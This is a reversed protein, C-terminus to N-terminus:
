SIMRLVYRARRIYATAAGAATKRYQIKVKIRGGAVVPYEMGATFAQWETLPLTDMNTEVYNGNIEQLVRVQADENDVLQDMRLEASYNILYYGAPLPGSDHDLVDIWDTSQTSMGPQGWVDDAMAASQKVPSFDQGTHAAALVDVRDLDAQSVAGSFSIKVVGGSRLVDTPKNALVDDTALEQAFIVQNCVGTQPNYDTGFASLPVQHTTTTTSM